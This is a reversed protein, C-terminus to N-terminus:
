NNFWGPIYDDPLLKVITSSWAGEFFLNGRSLELGRSNFLLPKQTNTLNFASIQWTGAENFRYLADFYNQQPKGKYIIYLSGDFQLSYIGQQSSPKVIDANAVRDKGLTSIFRPKASLSAWKSLSDNAHNGTGNKVQESLLKIKNSIVSDPPRVPNPTRILRRIVFKSEIFQEPNLTTLFHRFSGDYVNSRSQKWRDQATIDGQL